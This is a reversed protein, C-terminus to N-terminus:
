RRWTWADDSYANRLRDIDGQLEDGFEMPEPDRKTASALADRLLASVEELSPERGLADAITAALPVPGTPERLLREILAQDDRILISGHQLLAGGHRWQASGVLKKRGVVIEHESPHDFCPRLGPPIASPQTARTAAVGLRRLAGLLVDNIFAYLARAEAPSSCPMTVSYTIERYHLLARGGTPRRVIGVGMGQADALKYCGRARQNRGLSLTPGSWGYVRFVAGNGCGAARRMLAEDLAMNYAGDAAPTLLFHWRM